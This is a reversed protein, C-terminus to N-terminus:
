IINFSKMFKNRIRAIRKCRRWGPEKLLNNEIRHLVCKYPMDKFFQELPVTSVEGTELLVLVNYASNMYDDDGKKVASHGLIKCFKRYISDEGSKNNREIYGLIDNYTM